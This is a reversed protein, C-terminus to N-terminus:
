LHNYINISPSRGIRPDKAQGARRDLGLAGVGLLAIICDLAFCVFHVYMSCSPRMPDISYRCVRRGPRAKCGCRDLDLWRCAM